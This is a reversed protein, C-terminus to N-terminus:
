GFVHDIAWSWFKMLGVSGGTIGLYLLAATIGVSKWNRRLFLGVKMPVVLPEITDAMTKQNLSVEDLRLAIDRHQKSSEVSRADLRLHLDGMGADFKEDLATVQAAVESVDKVTSTLRVDLRALAVATMTKADADILHDIETAIGAHNDM